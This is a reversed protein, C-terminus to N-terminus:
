WDKVGSIEFTAEVPRGNLETAVILKLTAGIGGGEECELRYSHANPLEDMIEGILAIDKRHLYM